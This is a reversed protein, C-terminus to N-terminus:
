KATLTLNYLAAIGYGDTCVAPPINTGDGAQPFGTWVSENVTHFLGPRYMLAFCPVDTLYIKNIETYLEKLKAQDTVLPIEDIIADAAPNVYRGFNWNASEGVPIKSDYLTQYTRTWPNSISAGDYSNMIVDFNGTNKNETWEGATTWLTTVDFGIKQGAAAVMELAANWDTWGSPCQVTFAINAGDYERFGDGNTDKIGAEDLLANAEDIQNGTWQLDKLADKDILGQEGVTPNMMSPAVDSMLPTYGSMAATAIQNYDTAMALAKRVVVQDLGPKTVNFIATPLAVCEYYPLDDLYTSIPLGSEWMKWIEPMFQQSVDVEGQQLAVAGANNDAFITHALYKPAPLKGFLSTAQGWYNDDRIVVVKTEDDFFPKYPGSAILKENKATKVAEKDGGLEAELASMQAECVIYIKPLNELIKLPNFGETKATIVFTADDPAAVSEIYNWINASQVTELRKHAEFTYVADRATVPTGDSWHADPNMHITFVKDAQEYGSALLPYMKGDSQNFMFLTEFVMVRADSNQEVWWNNSNASFPNYDTIAGWQQGSFYLTEERPLSSADAPVEAPEATPEAAETPAVTAAPAETPATTVESSTDATDKKKCGALLSTVVLVMILLMTTLKKSSKM